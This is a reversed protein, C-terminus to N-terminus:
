DKNYLRWEISNFCHNDDFFFMADIILELIKWRKKSSYIAKYGVHGSITNDEHGNFLIVNILQDIAILVRLLYSKKIM